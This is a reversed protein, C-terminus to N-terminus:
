AGADSASKDKEMVRSVFDKPSVGFQALFCKSFYSPTNFGVMYGVSAVQHEGSALLEAAKKLRYLRVYDNPTM